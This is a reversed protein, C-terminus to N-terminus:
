SNPFSEERIPFFLQALRNIYPLQRNLEDFFIRENEVM